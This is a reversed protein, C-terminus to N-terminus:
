LKERYWKTAGACQRHESVPRVNGAADYVTGHCHFDGSHTLDERVMHRAMWTCPLIEKPTLEPKGDM